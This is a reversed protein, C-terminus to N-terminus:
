YRERHSEGNNDLIEITFTGEQLLNVQWPEELQESNVFVSYPESANLAADLQIFGDFSYSCSPDQKSIELIIGPDEVM